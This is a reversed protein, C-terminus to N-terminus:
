VSHTCRVVNKLIPHEFALQKCEARVLVGILTHTEDTNLCPNSVPLIADDRYTINLPCPNGTDPIYYGYMEEIVREDVLKNLNLAGEFVIESDAPVESDNTDSKVVDM